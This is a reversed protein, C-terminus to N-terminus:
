LGGYLLMICYLAVCIGIKLTLKRLISWFQNLQWDLYKVYIYIDDLDLTTIAIFNIEYKRPYNVM